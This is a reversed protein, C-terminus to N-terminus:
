TLTKLYEAIEPANSTTARRRLNELSTSKPLYGGEFLIKLCYLCDYRFIKGIISYMTVTDIFGRNIAEIVITTYAAKKM